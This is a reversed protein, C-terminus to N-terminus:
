KKEEKKLKGLMKCTIKGNPRAAIVRYVHGFLLFKDGSIALRVPLKTIKKPFTEHMVSKEKPKEM